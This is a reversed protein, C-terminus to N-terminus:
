RTTTVRLKGDIINLGKRPQQLRQGNLNYIASSPKKRTITQIGSPEDDNIDNFVLRAGSVTPALASPVSIYARMGKMTTGDSTPIALKGDTTIFLHTGNDNLTTTSYTGVLSVGNNNITQAATNSITVSNFTPNTVTTNLKILFPTGASIVADDAVADFTMVNDAYSSFTRMQIDQDTGLAAEMTAKTVNFPLCLTNWIGSRLTRFTKVNVIKNNNNSITSSNNLTEDITINEGANTTVTVDDIIFYFNDVTANYKFSIQTEGTGIICYEYTTLNTSHYPIDNITTSEEGNNFKGNTISLLLKAPNTKSNTARAKFSLKANGILNLSPTTATSILQPKATPNYQQFWLSYNDSTGSKTCRHLTWGHYETTNFDISGFSSFDEDILKEQAMGIASLGCMIIALTCRKITSQM